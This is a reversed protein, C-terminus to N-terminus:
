LRAERLSRVVFGNVRLFAPLDRFSPEPEVHDLAETVTVRAQPAIRGIAYTESVPFYRDRPGSILEVPVSVEEDGALPSLEELNARVGEPLGAYLEDFRRPDKNALLAAVSRAEAGMGSLDTLFSPRLRDM